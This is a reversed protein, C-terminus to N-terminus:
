IFMGCNIRKRVSHKQRTHLPCPCFTRPIHLWTVQCPLDQRQGSDAPCASLSLGQRRPTHRNQRPLVKLIHTEWCLYEFSHPHSEFCWMPVSFCHFNAPHLVCPMTSVTWPRGSSVSLSLSLFMPGPSCYTLSCWVNVTSETNTLRIFDCECSLVLGRSFASWAGNATKQNKHCDMPIEDKIMRLTNQGTWMIKGETGSVAVSSFLGIM